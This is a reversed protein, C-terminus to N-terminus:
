ESAFTPLRVSMCTGSSLTSRVTLTGGHTIAIWQAIPLGLGTGDAYFFRANSGRYLREFVRALEDPPIGIGTDKVEIM